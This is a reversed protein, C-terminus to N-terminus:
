QDSIENFIKWNGSDDKKLFFGFENHRDPFNVDITVVASDDQISTKKIKFDAGQYAKKLYEPYNENQELLVKNSNYMEGSILNNITEIDGNKLAQFYHLLTDNPGFAKAEIAGVSIILVTM